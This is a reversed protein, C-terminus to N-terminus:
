AAEADDDARNLMRSIASRSIGIAKAIADLTNGAARLGNIKELIEPDPKKHPKTRTYERRAIPKGQHAKYKDIQEVYTRRSDFLPDPDEDGDCPEPWVVQDIAPAENGL